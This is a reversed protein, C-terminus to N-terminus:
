LIAMSILPLRILVQQFCQFLPSVPLGERSISCTFCCSSFLLSSYLFQLFSLRTFNLNCPKLVKLCGWWDVNEFSWFDQWILEQFNSFWSPLPALAKNLTYVSLPQLPLCLFLIITLPSSNAQFFLHFQQFWNSVLLILLSFSLTQYVHM